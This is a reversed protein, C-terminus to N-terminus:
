TPGFEFEPRPVSFTQGVIATGADIDDSGGYLSRVDRGRVGVDLEHDRPGETFKRTLRVEGSTSGSRQDPIAILHHSAAGNSQTDLYLDAYGRPNDALSHFIGAALTWKGPLAANTLVGYHESYGDGDSWTQGFYRSRISPPSQDSAGYVTPMTNEATVNRRAWFARVTVDKSPTWQPIVAFAAIQDTEGPLIENHRFSTGAALGGHSFSSYGDLDVERGSFPGAYFASALTPAPESGRLEYDVIGTPAPWPFDLASLGVRIRTDSSLRDIMPGQKDFYLGELRANGASLPSFGRVNSDNYLGLSEPGITLGFADQAAAVVNNDTQPATAPTNKDNKAGEGLVNPDSQPETAGALASFILQVVIVIGCHVAASTRSSM